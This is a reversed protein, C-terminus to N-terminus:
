FKQDLQKSTKVPNNLTHFTPPNTIELVEQKIIDYAIHPELNGLQLLRKLNLARTYRQKINPM